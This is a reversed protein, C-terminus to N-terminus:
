TLAVFGWGLNSSFKPIGEMMPSFKEENFEFQVNEQEWFITLIHFFPVCIPNKPVHEGFKLKLDLYM